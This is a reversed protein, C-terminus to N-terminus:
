FDSKKNQIICLLEGGKQDIYKTLKSVTLNNINVTKSDSLESLLEAGKCLTRGRMMKIKYLGFFFITFTNSWSKDLLKPTSLVAEDILELLDNIIVAMKSNEYRQSKDVYFVNIIKSLVNENIIDNAIYRGKLQGLFRKAIKNGINDKNMADSDVKLMKTKQDEQYIFQRADEADMFMVRLEMPYDFLPDINFLNSIAIYRHYGDLIDFQTEQKIKLKGESSYSFDIDPSINLTITNPIFEKRKYLEMMQNIAKRNLSIKYYEFNNGVVKKMARQTNSNYNIVQANRLKMLEKVTIKGIYQEGERVEVMQSEFTYPFKFDEAHYYYNEYVVIENTAFFDLVSIEKTALALTFLIDDQVDRVDIRQTIIDSTMEIPINHSKKLGFILDTQWQKELLHKNFCKKLMSYFGERDIM